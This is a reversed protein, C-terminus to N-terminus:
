KNPIWIARLATSYEEQQTRNLPYNFEFKGQDEAEFVKRFEDFDMERIQEIIDSVMADPFNREIQTIYNQRMIENRKDWYMSMSEKQLQKMRKNLDRRNMSPLFEKVPDLSVAEAKGMGIQGKTYGLSEGRSKMEIDAVRDRQAKRKRNVIAARMTMEKKQWKTIKLNYDSDPVDIIEEAGRESFRRLSNLERNLDQRTEIMDRLQAASVREPLANKNKPDKKALRTLKANFNKVVRKLEAEDAENWRINYKRSM